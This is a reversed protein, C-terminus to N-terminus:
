PQLGGLQGLLQRVRQQHVRERNGIRSAEQLQIFHMIHIGKTLTTKYIPQYFTSALNKTTYINNNIRENHEPTRQFTFTLTFDSQATYNRKM